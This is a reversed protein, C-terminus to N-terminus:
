KMQRDSRRVTEQLTQKQQALDQLEKELALKKQAEQIEVRLLELKQQLEEKGAELDPITEHELQQISARADSDDSLHRGLEEVEGRFEVLKNEMDALQVEHEQRFHELEDLSAPSQPITALEEEIKQMRMEISRIHDKFTRTQPTGLEPIKKSPESQEPVTVPHQAAPTSAPQKDAPLSPRQIYLIVGGLLLLSGLIQAAKQREPSIVTGTGLKGVIALFLFLIGAMVLITPLPTRAIEIIVKEM